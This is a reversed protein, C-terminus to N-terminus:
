VIRTLTLVERHSLSGPNIAVLAFARRYLLVSRETGLQLRFLIIGAKCLQWAVGTGRTHYVPAFDCAAAATKNASELYRPESETLQRRLSQDRAYSLRAPLTLWRALRRPGAAPQHSGRMRAIFIGEKIKKAASGVASM